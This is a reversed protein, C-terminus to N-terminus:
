RKETGRLSPIPVLVAAGEGDAFTESAGGTPVLPGAAAECRLCRVDTIVRNSPPTALNCQFFPYNLLEPLLDLKTPCVPNRFKEFVLPRTSWRLYKVFVDPHNRLQMVCACSLSVSM